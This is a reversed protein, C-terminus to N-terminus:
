IYIYMFEQDVTCGIGNPIIKSLQKLAWLEFSVCRKESFRPLLSTQVKLKTSKFSM